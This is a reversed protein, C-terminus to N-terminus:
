RARDDPWVEEFEAKSVILDTLGGGNGKGDRRTTRGGAGRTLVLWDVMHTRWHEAPVPEFVGYTLFNSKGWVSLKGESALQEFEQVRNELDTEGEYWADSVKRGWERFRAYALGEELRTDRHSAVPATAAHHEGLFAPAEGISRAYEILASRKIELTKKLDGGFSAAARANMRHFRDEDFQGGNFKAILKQELIARKLKEFALASAGRLPTDPTDPPEEGAWLSAAQYLRLPDISDWSRVDFGDDAERGPRAPHPLVAFLALALGVVMCIAGFAFQYPGTWDAWEYGMTSMGAGMAPPGAALAFAAFSGLGARLRSLM